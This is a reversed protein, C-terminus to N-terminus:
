TFESGCISHSFHFIRVRKEPVRKKKSIELLIELIFKEGKRYIKGSIRKSTCDFNNLFHRCDARYAFIEPLIIKGLLLPLV